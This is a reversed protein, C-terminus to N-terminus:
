SALKPWRWSGPTPQEGAEECNACNLGIDWEPYTGGENEARGYESEAKFDTAGARRGIPGPSFVVLHVHDESSLSPIHGAEVNPMHLSDQTCAIIAPVDYDGTRSRYIVIRGITPKM